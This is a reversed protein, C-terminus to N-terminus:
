CGQSVEIDFCVSIMQDFAVILTQYNCCVDKFGNAFVAMLFSHSCGFRFTQQTGCVAKWLPMLIGFLVNVGCRGEFMSAALESLIQAGSHFRFYWRRAGFTSTMLEYFLLGLHYCLIDDDVMGIGAIGSM